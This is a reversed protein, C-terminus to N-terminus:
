VTYLELVIKPGMLVMLKVSVTSLSGSSQSSSRSHRLQDSNKLEKQMNNTSSFDLKHNHKSTSSVSPDGGLKRNSRNDTSYEENGARTSRKDLYMSTNESARSLDAITRTKYSLGSCTSFSNKYSQSRKLHGRDGCDTVSLDLLESNLNATSKARRGSTISDSTSITSTKSRTTGKSSGSSGYGSDDSVKRNAYSHGHKSSYTVTTGACLKSSSYDSSNAPVYKVPRSGSKFKFKNPLPGPGEPLPRALSVSSRPNHYAVDHTDLKRQTEESSSRPLQVRRTKESYSSSSLSRSHNSSATNTQSTSPSRFPRRNALPSASIRSMSVNM